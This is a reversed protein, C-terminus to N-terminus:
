EFPGELDKTKSVFTPKRKELFSKIGEKYDPGNYVRNRWGHLLEFDETTLSVSHKNLLRFQNKIASIAIISNNRLPNLIKEELLDHLEDLSTVHNVMGVNLAEYASLPQATFFMERAKNPGIQRIFHMIGSANYPIGIKAPTIAFSANYSAVIMDCSLCLDSAGGWVTGEVYAIVPIPLDQIDHMLEEMPVNFALPDTGDLPLENIDHGASWVGNRCEAKLVVACCENEFAKVLGARIENCLETSLCNLKKSNQMTIYCVRNDIKFDIM